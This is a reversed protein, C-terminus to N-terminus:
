ECQLRKITPLIFTVLLVASLSVCVATMIYYGDRRVVCHGSLKACMNKGHETICEEGGLSCYAETLVDVSRLILPKPWTGGLNSVTNLLQVYAISDAIAFRGLLESDHIDRRYPSGRDAYPVGHYRCVAGYQGHAIKERPFCGLGVKRALQTLDYGGGLCFILEVGRGTSFQVGGAGGGDGDGAERRVCVAM